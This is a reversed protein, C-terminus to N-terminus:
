GPREPCTRWLAQEYAAHQEESAVALRGVVLETLYEYLPKGLDSALKWLVKVKTPRPECVLLLFSKQARDIGLQALPRSALPGNIIVSCADVM